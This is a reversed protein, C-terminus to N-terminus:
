SSKCASPTSGGQLALLACFSQVSVLWKGGSYVATGTQNTLMPSGSVLIDYSVKAETSSEVVVNSVTASTTQATSSTAMGALATGLASADQLLAGRAAAPAKPNFFEIWNDAIAKQTADFTASVAPGSSASASASAAPSSPTSSSSSSGSSCAALSLLGVACASMALLPRCTINNNM